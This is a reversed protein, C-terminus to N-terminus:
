SGTSAQQALAEVHTMSRLVDDLHTCTSEGTGRARVHQKIRDAPSGVLLTASAVASPCERWPLVHPQVALDEIIGQRVSIQATYEHFTTVEGDSSRHTDRFAVDGHVLGDDDVWVDLRRVRCTSREDPEPIQHWAVPDDDRQLSAAPPGTPTPVRGHQRIAVMMVGDPAWGACIARRSAVSAPDAHVMTGAHLHSYGSVLAAGPLDDLLLALVSWPAIQGQTAETVCGRFGSAVTLGVLMELVPTGPSPVIETLRRTREDLHATFGIQAVVEDIGDTGTRLDRGYASLQARGATPWVTTISTTRRLSPRRRAPTGPGGSRPGRDAEPLLIPEGSSM